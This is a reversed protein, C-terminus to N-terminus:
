VNKKVIVWMISCQYSVVYNHSHPAVPTGGIVRPSRPHAVYAPKPIGREEWFQPYEYVPLVKSEDIPLYEPRNFDEAFVCAAILVVLFLLKM